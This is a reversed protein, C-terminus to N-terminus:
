GYQPPSLGLDNVPLSFHWCDFTCTKLVQNFVQFSLVGELAALGPLTSFLM